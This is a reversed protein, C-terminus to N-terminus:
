LNRVRPETENEGFQAAKGVHFAKEFEECIAFRRSEKDNQWSSFNEKTKEIEKDKMRRM